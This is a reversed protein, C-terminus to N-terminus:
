NSLKISDKPAAAFTERMVMAVITAALNAGIRKLGNRIRTVTKIWSVPHITM